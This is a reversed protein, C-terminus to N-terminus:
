CSCTFFTDNPDKAKKGTVITYHEWFMPWKNQDVNKYTETNDYTYEESDVWLNAAELLDNYPQNLEEAFSEIWKQSEAEATFMAGVFAPHIWEHRLSTISGPYLFMYFREGPKVDEQLFPDVIGIPAESHGAWDSGILGIHQGPSLRENATMPAVAVHIADRKADGALLKGVGIDSM